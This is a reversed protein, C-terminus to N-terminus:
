WFLFDVCARSSFHNIRRVSATTAEAAEIAAGFREVLRAQVTALEM